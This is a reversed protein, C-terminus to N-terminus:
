RRRGRQKYYSASHQEYREYANIQRYELYEEQNIEKANVCLKTHKVSPMRRAMDVADLLTKAEFAFKIYSTNGSGCHGRECTVLFYKIM